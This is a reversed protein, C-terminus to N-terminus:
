TAGSRESVAPLSTGKRRSHIQRLEDIEGCIDASDCNKCDMDIHEFMTNLARAVKGCGEALPTLTRVLSDDTTFIVEAARVFPLAKYDRLLELGLRVLSFGNEYASKSVRSWERDRQSFGRLMYGSLQLRFRVLDMQEFASYLGDEPLPAVGLLVLKGFPVRNDGCYTSIEPLDRGYVRISGDEILDLQETWLISAFSPMRANGLEVGMDQELVMQKAASRPWPPYGASVANVRCAPVDELHRRLALIQEDFLRM